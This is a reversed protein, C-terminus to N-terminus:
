NTLRRIVELAGRKYVTLCVLENAPDIVAWHRDYPLIAYPGQVKAVLNQETIADEM